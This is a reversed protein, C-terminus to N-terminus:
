FDNLTLLYTFMNDPHSASNAVLWDLAKQHNFQTAAISLIPIAEQDNFPKIQPGDWAKQKNLYPLLTDVAKPLSNGNAATFGWFDLNIKKSMAAIKLFADVVFVSYHFSTTRAMELPFRGSPDMQTTLRKQANNVIARAEPLQKTYLAISLRLADYWAGHNNPAKLEEKGIKSTQMWNLFDAFWQQLAAQEEKSVAKNALLLSIAEIAKILHRADILGAGRGQNVGKIAQAFNMNPNMRTATDLFWVKVLKMAHNAYVDKGSFHHAISLLILHECLSPLYEKDKYLKVEPNTEGDKRMYPLGEKKSPDPWHYPALSMYDHKSGSPPVDKKEMVSVPGFSLSKDASKLLKQYAAKLTLDGADLSKKQKNLLSLDLISPETIVKQANSINVFFCILALLLGSQKALIALITAADSIRNKLKM